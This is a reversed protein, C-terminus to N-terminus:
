QLWKILALMATDIIANILISFHGFSGWSDSQFFVNRVHLALAAELRYGRGSSEREAACMACSVFASGALICSQCHTAGVRHKM